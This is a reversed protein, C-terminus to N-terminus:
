TPALTSRRPFGAYTLAIGIIGFGASAIAAQLAGSLKVIGVIYDWRQTVFSLVWIGIALIALGAVVLGRHM